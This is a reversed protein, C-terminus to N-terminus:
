ISEFYRELEWDTVAREYQRAEWDRTRLYHDVFEPTLIERAEPCGELRTIAERLTRPLAGGPIEDVNEQM